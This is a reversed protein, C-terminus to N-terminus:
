LTLRRPGDCDDNSDPSEFNLHKLDELWRRILLVQQFVIDHSVGLHAAIDGIASDDISCQRVTEDSLCALAGVLDQDTFPIGRKSERMKNFEVFAEVIQSM